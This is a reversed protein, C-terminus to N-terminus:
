WHSENITPEAGQSRLWPMLKTRFCAPCLHFSTEESHGGPPSSHQEDLQIVSTAHKYNGRGWEEDANSEYGCLDCSLKEFVKEEHELILVTKMHKM